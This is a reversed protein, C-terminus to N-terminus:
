SLAKYIKDAIKESKTTLQFNAGLKSQIVPQSIIHDGVSIQLQKKINEGTLQSLKKAAASTLTINVGHAQSNQILTISQIDKKQLVLQQKIISFNITHEPAANVSFSASAILVAAVLSTVLPKFKIM